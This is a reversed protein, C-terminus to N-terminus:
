IIRFLSSNIILMPSLVYRTHIELTTLTIKPINPSLLKEPIEKTSIIDEKIKCLDM